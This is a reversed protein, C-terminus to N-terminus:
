RAPTSAAGYWTHGTFTHLVNAAGTSEDIEILRGNSTLGFLFGWAATLGYVATVGMEGIQTGQGTAGNIRILSDTGSIHRSSMLLTNDKNVVCDGSSEFSGGMTGVLEYDATDLDITYLHNGSTLYANGDLDIALGNPDGSIGSWTGVSDWDGTTGDLRYLGAVGAGYLTGDPHTDMDWLSPIPGLQTATKLFPDVKYLHSNTHAFFFCVVGDNVIDNCNNDLFDCSEGLEPNRHSNGDDCDRGGCERAIQGDGDADTTCTLDSGALDPTPQDTTADHALDWSPEWDDNTPDSSSDRSSLDPSSRRRDRGADVTTIGNGDGGDDSTDACSFLTIVLFLTLIYLISRMPPFM